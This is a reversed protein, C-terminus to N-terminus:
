QAGNQRDLEKERSKQLIHEAWIWLFSSIYPIGQYIIIGIEQIEIWFFVSLLLNLLLCSIVSQLSHKFIKLQLFVLILPVSSVGFSWIHEFMYIFFDM